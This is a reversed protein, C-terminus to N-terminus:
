FALSVSAVVGSRSRAPDPLAAPTAMTWGLGLEVRGLRRIVDVRADYRNRRVLTGRTGSIPTFAGLHGTVRWDDAPRIAGNLETYLVNLGLKQYNPSYSVRAGLTGNSVGAYLETYRLRTKHSGYVRLDLNDAGLDWVLGDPRRIAYGAYEAHGLLRVGEDGADLGTASAGYYLGNALDGSAALTLTPRLDSVSVGRLRDDSQLTLAAAIQAHAAPALAFVATGALAGALADVRWRRGSRRRVAEM